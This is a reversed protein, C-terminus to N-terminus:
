FACHINLELKTYTSKYALYSLPQLILCSLFQNPPARAKSCLIVLKFVVYLLLMPPYMLIGDVTWVIKCRYFDSDVSASKIASQV